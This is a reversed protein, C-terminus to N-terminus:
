ERFLKYTLLNNLTKKDNLLYIKNQVAVGLIQRDGLKPIRPITTRFLLFEM